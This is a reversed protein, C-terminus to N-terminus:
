EDEAQQMELAEGLRRTEGIICAIGSRPFVYAARLHPPLGRFTEDIEACAQDIRDCADKIIQSAPM